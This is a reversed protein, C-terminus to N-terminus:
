GSECPGPQESVEVIDEWVRVHENNNVRREEKEFTMITWEDGSDVEVRVFDHSNMRRSEAGVRVIVLNNVWRWETTEWASIAIIIWEDGSDVEVRVLDHSNVPRKKRGASECPRPQESMEVRDGGQESM